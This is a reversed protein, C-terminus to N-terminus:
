SATTAATTATTATTVSDGLVFLLMIINSTKYNVIAKSGLGVWRNDCQMSEEPREEGEKGSGAASGNFGAAAAHAASVRLGRGTHGVSVM